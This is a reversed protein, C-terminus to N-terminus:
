LELSFYVIYHVRLYIDASPLWMALVVGITWLLVVTEPLSGDVSEAFVRYMRGPSNDILRVSLFAIVEFPETRKSIPDLIVLEDIM